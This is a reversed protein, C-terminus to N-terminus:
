AALTPNSEDDRLTRRPQTLRRYQKPRRKVARPEGRGPREPVVRLTLEVAGYAAEALWRVADIFSIRELPVNQRRSAERMVLRVLNYILAYMALEKIVGVV